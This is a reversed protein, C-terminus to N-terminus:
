RCSEERQAAKEKVARSFLYRCDSIQSLSQRDRKSRIEMFTPMPDNRRLLSHFREVHLTLLACVAICRIMEPGLGVLKAWNLVQQLGRALLGASEITICAICGHEATPCTIGIEMAVEKEWEGWSAVLEQM